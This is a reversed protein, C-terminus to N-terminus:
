NKHRISAHTEIKQMFNYCCLPKRNPRVIKKNTTYQSFDQKPNKPGVDDYNRALAM